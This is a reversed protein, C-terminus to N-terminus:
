NCCAYLGATLAVGEILALVLIAQFVNFIKPTKMM